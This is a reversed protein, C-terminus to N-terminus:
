EDREWIVDTMEHLREWTWVCLVEPRYYDHVGLLYGLGEVDWTM